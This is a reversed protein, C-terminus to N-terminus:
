RGVAWTRENRTRVIPREGTWWSYNRGYFLADQHASVDKLIQRQEASFHEAIRLNKIYAPELIMTADHYKDYIQKYREDM